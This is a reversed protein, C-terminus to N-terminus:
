ALTVRTKANIIYNYAVMITPLFILTAVLARGYFPLGAYYCEMLGKADFSYTTHNGFFWVSFNSLIFFLTAGAISGLFVHGMKKANMAWGVITTLLLLAYNMIQYKYFGAFPFHGTRYLLEIIADSIFLTALPLLFSANPQQIM